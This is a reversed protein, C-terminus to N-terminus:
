YKVRWWKPEENTKVMEKLKQTNPACPRTPLKDEMPDSSAIVWVFIDPEKVFISYVENHPLGARSALTWLLATANEAMSVLPSEPNIEPKIGLDAARQLMWSYTRKYGYLARPM